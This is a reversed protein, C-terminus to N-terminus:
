QIKPLSASSESILYSISCECEMAPVVLIIGFDLAVIMLRRSAGALERSAIGASVITKAFDTPM